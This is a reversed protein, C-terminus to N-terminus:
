QEPDEDEESWNTTVSELPSSANAEIVTPLPPVLLVLEFESQLRIVATLSSPTEIVQSLLSIRPV